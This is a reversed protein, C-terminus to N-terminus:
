PATDLAPEEQCLSESCGTEELFGPSDLSPTPLGALALESCM